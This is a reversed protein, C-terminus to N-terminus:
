SLSLNLVSGPSVGYFISALSFGPLGVVGVWLGALSRTATWGALMSGGLAALVVLCVRGLVSGLAEKIPAYPYDDFRNM